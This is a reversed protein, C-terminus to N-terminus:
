ATPTSTQTPMPIPQVGQEMVSFAAALTAVVHQNPITALSPAAGSIVHLWGFAPLDAVLRVASALASQEPDEWLSFTVVTANGLWILQTKIQDAMQDTTGVPMAVRFEFNSPADPTVGPLMGPPIWLQVLRKADAKALRLGFAVQQPLTRVTPTFLIARSTFADTRSREALYADRKAACTPCDAAPNAPRLPALGTHPVAASIPASVATSGSPARLASLLQEPEPQQYLWVAIRLFPYAAFPFGCAAWVPILDLYWAVTGVAAAIWWAVCAPCTLPPFYGLLKRVPAFIAEYMWLRHVGISVLVLALFIRM